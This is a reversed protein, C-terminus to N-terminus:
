VAVRRSEGALARELIDVGDHRVPACVVASDAVAVDAFVEDRERAHESDGNRHVVDGVLVDVTRM